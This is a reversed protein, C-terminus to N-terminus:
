LWISIPVRKQVLDHALDQGTVFGFFVHAESLPAASPHEVPWPGVTPRCAGGAALSWTASPGCMDEAAPCPLRGARAARPRRSARAARPWPRDSYSSTTGAAHSLHHLQAPRPRWAPAPARASARHAAAASSISHLCAAPSIHINHATHLQHSGCNTPTRLPM